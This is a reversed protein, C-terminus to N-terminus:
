KEQQLEIESAIKGALAVVLRSMIAAMETYEKTKVQEKFSFIQESLKKNGKGNLIVFAGKLNSDGGFQGEFTRIHVKVQYDFNRYASWPSVDIYGTKLNYTLENAILMSVNNSLGGAWRHFDALNITNPGTRTVIEPRDILDPLTVKWVGITLKDTTQIDVSHETSLLYFNTKPSTGCATFLVTVGILLLSKLIKLM